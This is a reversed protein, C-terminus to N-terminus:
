KTPEAPAAEKTKCGSKCSAKDGKKKKSHGKCAAKDKGACSAKDKAEVKAEATSGSHGAEHEAHAVSVAFLGTVIAAKVLTSVKSNM